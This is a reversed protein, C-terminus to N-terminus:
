EYHQEEDIAPKLEQTRAPVGLAIAKPPLSRTVVANAGVVAREGITVGRTVTAKAGLWCDAGISVPDVLNNGSTPPQSSDHDHDRISVLEGLMTGNGLSIRARAAITCHHGIFCDDGIEIVAGSAASLTAGDDITCRNGLRITAGPEIHLRINSGLEVGSGVSIGPGLSWLIGRALRSRRRAALTLVRFLDTSSRTM